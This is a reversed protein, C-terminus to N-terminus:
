QDIEVLGLEVWGEGQPAHVYVYFDHDAESWASRTIQIPTCDPVSALYRGRDSAQSSKPGPDLGPHEWLTVASRLEPRTSCEIRAERPLSRLAPPPTPNARPTPAVRQCGPQTLVALLLVFVHVRHDGLGM